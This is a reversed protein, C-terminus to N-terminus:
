RNLADVIASDIQQINSLGGSALIKQTDGDVLCFWPIGPPCYLQALSGEWTQGDNIHPWTIRREVLVKRLADTEKSPELAIGLIALHERDYTELMRQLEPIARKCPGCWTAGFELLVIKDRFDDPFAIPHGDIDVSKFSPAIRGPRLDPPPPIEGVVQDSQVVRFQSGDPAMDIIQYTIGGINFPKRADFQEGRHEFAENENVDLRLSIGSHDPDDRGRFDGCASADQLIASFTRSGLTITGQRCYDAHYNLETPNEGRWRLIIQAKAESQSLPLLAEATYTVDEVGDDRVKTTKVCEIAIEDALTQNRNSDILLRWQGPAAQDVLFSINPAADNFGWRIQGFLPSNLNLPLDSIADPRDQSLTAGWPTYSGLKATARTSCLELRVPEGDPDTPSQLVLMAMLM